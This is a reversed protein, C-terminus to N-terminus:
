QAPTTTPSVRGNKCVPEARLEDLKTDYDVQCAAVCNEEYVRGQCSVQCIMHKAQARLYRAECQFANPTIEIEHCPPKANIAALKKTRREECAAACKGHGVGTVDGMKNPQADMQLDCRALCDYFSSECRLNKAECRMPNTTGQAGAVGVLQLAACVITGSLFKNTM